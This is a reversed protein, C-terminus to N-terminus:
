LGRKIARALFRAPHIADLCAGPLAQPEGCLESAIRDALLPALTFGRAGLGGLLYLGEHAPAPASLDLARGQALGAFRARWAPADPCLGAIPARDPTTARLAARAQLSEADVRAAIDPAFAALQALNRARANVDPAPEDSLRARDHTAGFLVGGAHPAVYAGDAIACGLPAGRLRGWEIQGRVAALPLFDTQAFSSLGPGNALIVCDAAFLAAGDASLLRWRGEERTLRAVDAGTRIAAGATLAAL